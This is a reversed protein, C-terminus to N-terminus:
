MDDSQSPQSGQQVKPGAADAGGRLEAPHATAGTDARRHELQHWKGSEPLLQLCHQLELGQWM